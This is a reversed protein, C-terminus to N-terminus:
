LGKIFYAFNFYVLRSNNYVILFSLVLINTRYLSRGKMETLTWLGFLSRSCIRSSIVSKLRLFGVHDNVDPILFSSAEMLGAITSGKMYQGDM